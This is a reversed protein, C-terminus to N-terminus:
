GCTCVEKHNKQHAVGLAFAADWTPRGFREAGDPWVTKTDPEWDCGKCHVYWLVRRTAGNWWVGYVSIKHKM